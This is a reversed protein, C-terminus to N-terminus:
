YARGVLGAQKLYTCAWQANNVYRPLGSPILEAMDEDTLGFHEAVYSRPEKSSVSEEDPMKGLYSLVPFMMEDYKPVAM